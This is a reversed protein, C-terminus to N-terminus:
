TPPEAPGLQSAAGFDRFRNTDVNHVAHILVKCPPSLIGHINIATHTPQLTFNGMYFMGKPPKNLPLRAFTHFITGVLRSVDSILPHGPLTDHRENFHEYQICVRAPVSRTQRQLVIDAPCGAVHGCQVCINDNAPM